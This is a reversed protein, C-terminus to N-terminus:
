NIFRHKIITKLISFADTWRIKKGANWRRPRYSIPLEVIKYNGKLIKCAIEPEIDFRQSYLMLSKLVETKCMKFCTLIDSYHGGYLFNVLFVFLKNIFLTRLIYDPKHLHLLRSGFVVDAQGALIPAMLKTYDSPKVELDADQPVFIKGKALSIAKILCAGKGMNKHNRILTFQLNKNLETLIDYTGDTSCDDIVIVEKNRPEVSLVKQVVEAVTSKENYVPIAVTLRFEDM